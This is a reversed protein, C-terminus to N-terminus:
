EIIIKLPKLNYIYVNQWREREVTMEKLLFKGKTASITSSWIWLEKIASLKNLCV